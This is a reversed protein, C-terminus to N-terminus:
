WKWGTPQWPCTIKGKTGYIQIWQAVTAADATDIQNNPPLTRPTAGSVNGPCTDCGIPVWSPLPTWPCTIKGKSGYLQIWQAVTAADATDIQGNVPLTRPTAGSVNGPCACKASPKNYDEVEGDSAPGFYALGGATSIRWRSVLPTAKIAAAPVAFAYVGTNVPTNNFIQENAETFDGDNNFDIWADLKGPGNSVTLTVSGVLGIATVVTIGDEDGPPFVTPGTTDDLICGVSPAGNLEADINVGLIPGIGIMPGAMAHSPGNSVLLTQYTDPADGFDVYEAEHHKKYKIGKLHVTPHQDPDKMVLGPSDSGTGTRAPNGVLTINCDGPSNIYISLLTGSSPPANPAGVYLSGMEISVGNTDLGRLTTGAPLGCPDCVPSGYDVVIGAANIDISGPYIQYKTNFSDAEGITAGTTTNVDLGFARIEGAGNADYKVLVENTDPVQELYIVPDGARAPAVLLFLVISFFVIKKM